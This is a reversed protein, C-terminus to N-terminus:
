AQKKALFSTFAIHRDMWDGAIGVGKGMTFAAAITGVGLGKIHGLGIGTLLATVALCIVDFSIKIKPYTISTIQSLERPFPRYARNADPLPQFTRDRHLDTHLKGCLLARALRHRYASCQDVNRACGAARRVCIRGRLQVPVSSCIKQAPDDTDAGSTGPFYLDLHWTHSGFIRLFIRLSCQLDRLNWNRFVADACRRLQQDCSCSLTCARGSFCPSIKIYNPYELCFGGTLNKSLFYSSYTHISM